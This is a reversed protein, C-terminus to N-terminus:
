PLSLCFNSNQFVFPRFLFERVKIDFYGSGNIMFRIEEDYHLHETKFTDLKERLNPIKISEVFDHNKYNREQRIRALKGEAEWNAADIKWAM